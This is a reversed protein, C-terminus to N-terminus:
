DKIRECKEYSYENNKQLFPLDLAINTDTINFGEVGAWVHSLETMMRRQWKDYEAANRHSKDTNELRIREREAKMEATITSASAGAPWKRAKVLEEYPVPNNQKWEAIADYFVSMQARLHRYKLKLGDVKAIALKESTTFGIICDERDDEPNSRILFVEDEIKEEEVNKEIVAATDEVVEFEWPCFYVGNTLFGGDSLVVGVWRANNYYVDDPTVLRVTKWNLSGTEPFDQTYNEKRYARRPIRVLNEPLFGVGFKDTLGIFEVDIDNPQVHVIRGEKNYFPNAVGNVEKSLGVTFVRDNPRFSGPIEEIAGNHYVKIHNDKM